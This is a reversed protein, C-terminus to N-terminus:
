TRENQSAHTNSRMHGPRHSTESPLLAEGNHPRLRDHM